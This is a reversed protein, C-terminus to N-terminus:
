PRAYFRAIKRQMSDLSQNSLERASYSRPVQLLVMDVLRRAQIAQVPRSRLIVVAPIGRHSLIDVRSSRRTDARNHPIDVKSLHIAAQSHPTVARRSPHIAVRSHHTAVRSRHTAARHPIVAQSLIGLLRIVRNCTQTQFGVLQRRIHVLLIAVLHRLTARSSLRIGAPIAAV